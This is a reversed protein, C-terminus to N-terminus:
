HLARSNWSLLTGSENATCECVFRGSCAICTATNRTNWFQWGRVSSYRWVTCSWCRGGYPHMYRVRYGRLLWPHSWSVESRVFLCAVGPSHCLHRVISFPIDYPSIRCCFSGKLLACWGCWVHVFPVNPHSLKLMVESEKLFEKKKEAHLEQARKGGSADDEQLIKVACRDSVGTGNCCM